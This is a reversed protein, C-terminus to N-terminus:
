STKNQELKSKFELMKTDYFVLSPQLLDTNSGKYFTLQKTLQINPTKISKGDMLCALISWVLVSWSLQDHRKSSLAACFVNVLIGMM